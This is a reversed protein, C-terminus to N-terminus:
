ERAPWALKAVLRALGILNFALLVTIVVIFPTSLTSLTNRMTPSAFFLASPVMCLFCVAFVRKLKAARSDTDTFLEPARGDVAKTRWYQWGMMEAAREWGADQLLQKYDPKPEENYDVRYVIDAPEGKEFTWFPLMGLKKLHLGQLAMRRLWQEQEVDQDAWFFKFKTVSAGSM